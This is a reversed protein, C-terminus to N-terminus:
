ECGHCVQRTARRRASTPSAAYEEHPDYPGTYDRWGPQLSFSGQRQRLPLIEPSTRFTAIMRRHNGDKVSEACAGRVIPAVAPVSAVSRPLRKGAFVRKRGQALRAEARTVADIM